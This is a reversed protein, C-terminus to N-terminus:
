TSTAQAQEKPPEVSSGSKKRPKLVVKARGKLTPLAREIGGEVEVEAKEVRPIANKLKQLRTQEKATFTKRQRDALTELKNYRTDGLFTRRDNAQKLILDLTERNPANRL